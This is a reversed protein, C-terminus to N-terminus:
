YKKTIIVVVSTHVELGQKMYFSSGVIFIDHCLSKKRGWM